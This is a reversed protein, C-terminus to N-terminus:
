FDPLRAYKLATLVSGNWANDELKVVAKVCSAFAKRGEVGCVFPALTNRSYQPYGVTSYRGWYLAVGDMGIGRCWVCVPGFYQPLVAPPWCYQLAGLVSGSGHMCVM